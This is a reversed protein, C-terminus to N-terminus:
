AQVLRAAFERRRRDNGATRDQGVLEALEPLCVPRLVVSARMGGRIPDSISIRADCADGSATAYLIVATSCDAHSLAYVSLQYLMDSPLSTEWLDRYKADAIGVVRDQQKLVYDPKLAPAPRHRPNFGSQYSFLGRMRYQPVVTAGELWESLFRELVDQYLRNMDLLFGPLKAPKAGGELGFGSGSILLRILGFAPEYAGTLRSSVRRLARFTDETLDVIEVRDALMARLRLARVRIEPAVARQAALDLGALLVRNPLVNEHREDFRCELRATTVPRRAHQSFLVRGRPSALAQERTLYTRFIGRALLQSIETVLRLVILDQFPSETLAVDHQPLLHVPLGVAYWLLASYPRGALKPVIRITLPGTSISGVFSTTNVEVGDRLEQVALMREKRLGAQIARDAPGLDLKLNRLEVHSEPTARQWEALDITPM